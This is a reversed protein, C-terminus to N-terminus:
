EFYKLKTKIDTYWHFIKQQLKIYEALGHNIHSHPNM